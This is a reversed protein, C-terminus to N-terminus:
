LYGRLVDTRESLDKILNHIANTELMPESAQIQLPFVAAEAARFLSGNYRFAVAAVMRGREALCAVDPIVGREAEWHTTIAM